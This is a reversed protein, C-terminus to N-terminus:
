QRRIEEKAAPAQLGKHINCPVGTITRLIKNSLRQLIELNSTRAAEFWLQKIICKHLLLKSNVSLTPSNQQFVRVTEEGEIETANEQQFYKELNPALGLVVRKSSTATTAM